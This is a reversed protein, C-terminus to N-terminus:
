RLPHSPSRLQNATWAPSPQVTSALPPGSGGSGDTSRGDHSSVPKVRSATPGTVPSPRSASRATAVGRGPGPRPSRGRRVRQVPHLHQHIEPEADQEPLLLDEVALREAHGLEGLDAGTGVRGVSRATGAGPRSPNRGGRRPRPGRRVAGAPLRALQHPGPRSRNPASMLDRPGPGELLGRLLLGLRLHGGSAPGRGASARPPWRRPAAGAPRRGPGRAGPIAAVSVLPVVDGCQQGLDRVARPARTEAPEPM